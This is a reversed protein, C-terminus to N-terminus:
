EREIPDYYFYDKISFEKENIERVGRPASKDPVFMTKGGVKVLFYFPNSFMDAITKRAQARTCKRAIFKKEYIPWAGEEIGTAEWSYDGATDAVKLILGPLGGFKYPGADVPLVPCYWAEYVRGKFGTRAKQCVYGMVTGTDSLLQWSFAAPEEEYRLVVSASPTRVITFSGEKGVYLVLCTLFM